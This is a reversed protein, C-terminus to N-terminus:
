IAARRHCSDQQCLASACADVQVTRPLRIYSFGVEREREKGRNSPGQRPAKFDSNEEDENDQDVADQRPRKGIDLSSHRAMPSSPLTILNIPSGLARPSGQQDMPSPPRSNLSIPSGLNRPSSQQDMPSPPRTTPNTPYSLNLGSFSARPSQPFLFTSNDGLKWTDWAADIDAWSQSKQSQWGSLNLPSLM